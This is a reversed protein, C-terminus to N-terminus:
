VTDQDQPAVAESVATRKQGIKDSLIQELQEEQERRGNKERKIEHRRGEERGGGRM